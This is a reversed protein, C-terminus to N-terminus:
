SDIGISEESGLDGGPTQGEDNWWDRLVDLVILGVGVDIVTDALNFVPWDWHHYYHVHLYDIVYGLSARDILNGLAGALILVLAVAVMQEDEDVMSLYFLIVAVTFVAILIFATIQGRFLGFAAGQNQVYTLKFFGPILEISRKGMPKLYAVAAWKLAQDAFLFSMGLAFLPSGVLLRPLNRLVYVPWLLAMGLFGGLYTIGWGAAARATM